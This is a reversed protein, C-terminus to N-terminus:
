KALRLGVLVIGVNTPMRIPESRYEIFCRRSTNVTTLKSLNISTMVTFLSDYACSYDNEDWILGLPTSIKLNQSTSSQLKIKKVYKEDFCSDPAKRKKGNINLNTLSQYVNLNWTGDEEKEKIIHDENSLKLARHPYNSFKSKIENQYNYIM